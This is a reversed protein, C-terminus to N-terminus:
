VDVKYKYPSYSKEEKVPLINSVNASREPVLSGIPVLATGKARNEFKSAVPRYHGAGLIEMIEYECIETTDKVGVIKCMKNIAEPISVARYRTRMSVDGKNERIIALYEPITTM